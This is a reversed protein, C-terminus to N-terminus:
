TQLTQQLHILFAILARKETVSLKEFLTIIKLLDKSRM